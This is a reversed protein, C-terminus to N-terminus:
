HIPYRQPMPAAAPASAEDRNAMQYAIGFLFLPLFVV